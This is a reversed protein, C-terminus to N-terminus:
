SDASWTIGGDTSVARERSGDTRVFTVEIRGPAVEVDEVAGTSPLEAVYVWEEGMREAFVNRNAPGARDVVVVAHDADVDFAEVEGVDWRGAVTPLFSPEPPPAATAAPTAEGEPVTVLESEPLLRRRMTFPSLSEYEGVDSQWGQRCDAPDFCWRDLYAYTLMEPAIGLWTIGALPLAIVWALMALGIGWTRWKWAALTGLCALLPAVGIVVVIKLPDTIWWGLRVADWEDGPLTFALWLAAACSVWVALAILTVRTFVRRGRPEPEGEAPIHEATGAMLLEGPAVTMVCM